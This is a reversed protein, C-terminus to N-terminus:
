FKGDWGKRLMEESLSDIIYENGVTHLVEYGEDISENIGYKEFIEYVNKSFVNYREVFLYICFMRFRILKRIRSEEYVEKRKRRM